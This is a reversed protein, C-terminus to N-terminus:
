ATQQGAWRQGGSPRQHIDRDDKDEVCSHSLPALNNIAFGYRNFIGMDDPGGRTAQIQRRRARPSLPLPM